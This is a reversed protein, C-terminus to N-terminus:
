IGGLKFPDLRYMLSKEVLMQVSNAAEEQSLGRPHVLHQDLPIFVYLEASIGTPDIDLNLGAGAGKHRAVCCACQPAELQDPLLMSWPPTSPLGLENDNSILREPFRKLSLYVLVLSSRVQDVKM